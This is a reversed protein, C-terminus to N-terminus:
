QNEDILDGLGASKLLRAAKPTLSSRKIQNNATREPKMYKTKEVEKVFEELPDYDVKPDQKAKKILDDVQELLAQSIEKAEKADEPDLKLGGGYIPSDAINYIRNILDSEQYMKTFQDPTLQKMKDIFTNIDKDEIGVRKMIETVESLFGRYGGRQVGPYRLYENITAQYNRFQEQSMYKVDMDLISLKEALTELHLREGPMEGVKAATIKYQRLFHERAQKVNQKLYQMNWSTTTAGGLNEMSSLIDSGGKSFKSMLALERDLDKRTKNRAKIDSVKVAQPLDRFGKAYMRNRKQNFNKVTRAIKANYGQNYRITM